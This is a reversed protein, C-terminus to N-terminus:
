AACGKQSTLKYGRWLFVEAKRCVMHKDEVNKRVTTGAGIICRNGINIGQIVTSNAGVFVSKGIKVNGCLISGVSIHSFDGVECDHEIIAGTNIICMKGVSANTNVIAGKGVMTGEGLKVGKALIASPDCIGPLQFGITKLEAWLRERLDSKGLYGIGIAANRIGSQFIQGLDADNGIVPYGEGEAQHHNENMVYGAVEYKGEKEIIDVLSRSHGGKGLIIIKEM